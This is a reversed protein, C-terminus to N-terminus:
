YKKGRDGVFEIAFAQMKKREMLTIQLSWSIPTPDAVPQVKISISQFCEM